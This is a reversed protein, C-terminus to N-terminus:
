SGRCKDLEKRLRKVEAELEKIKTEADVYKHSNEFHEAPHRNKDTLQLNEIRNDDKIGNIHHAIEHPELYRGLHEEMVLRHEMVYGAKTAYPHNLCYVYVYGTKLKRRGGRWNGAKDGLRPVDKYKYKYVDKSGRTKIGLAVLADRVVGPTCGVERAIGSITLMDVQYAKKLWAKDNILAYKSTRKRRKIGYRRLVRGVTAKNCGVEDAISQLTRLKDIYEAELWKRDRLKHYM